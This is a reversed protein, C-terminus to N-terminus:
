LYCCTLNFEVDNTVAESPEEIGGRLFRIAFRNRNGSIEPFIADDGEVSIRILQATATTPLSEQYLGERAIVRRLAASTRILSLLLQIADRILELDGTWYDIQPRRERLPRGLWNHYLPLDFGCTGGPLSGRQAVGKLFENERIRQGIPRTYARLNEAAKNLDSVLRELAIIDVRPQDRIRELAAAQRDLEKILETKIDSRSSITAIDLLTEILARAAWPDDQPQLYDLKDFLHELRMFIRARENLPHEFTLTTVM